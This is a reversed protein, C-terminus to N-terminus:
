CGGREYKAVSTRVATGNWAPAVVVSIQYDRAAWVEVVCTGAPIGTITPASGPTLAPTNATASCGSTQGTLTSPTSPAKVLRVCVATTSQSATTYDDFQTARVRSIVDDAWSASTADATAGFRAGERVANTLGIAHTYSLGATVLGFLLMVLVPLVLAFEVAVAGSELRARVRDRGVGWLDQGRM